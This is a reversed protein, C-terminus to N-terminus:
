KVTRFSLLHALRFLTMVSPSISDNRGLAFRIMYEGVVRMTEPISPHLRLVEHVIADLIPSETMLEDWTPDRASFKDRLEKRLASQIEINRALEILGWQAIRKNSPTCQISPRRCGVTM